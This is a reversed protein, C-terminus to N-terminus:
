EILLNYYILIRVKDQSLDVTGRVGITEIIYTAQGFDIRCLTDYQQISTWEEKVKKKPPEDDDDAGSDSASAESDFEEAVDSESQADFDGDESESDASGMDVDEDAENIAKAIMAKAIKEENQVKLGKLTCYNEITEQEEKEINAFVHSGSGKLTVELDFTRSTVGGTGTRSM